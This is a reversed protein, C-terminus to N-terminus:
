RARGNGRSQEALIDVRTPERFPPQLECVPVEVHGTRITEGTPRVIGAETLAQLMGECESYDKIAVQNRGLPVDLLNVTATAIPSEDEADVLQLAPRGNGYQRKVVHCNWDRFRIIPPTM